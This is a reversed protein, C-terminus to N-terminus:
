GGTVNGTHSARVWELQEITSNYETDQLNRDGERDYGSMDDGDVVAVALRM